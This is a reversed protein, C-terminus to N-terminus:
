LNKPMKKLFHSQRRAEFIKSRGHGPNGCCSRDGADSGPEVCSGMCGAIAPCVLCGPACVTNAHPTVIPSVRFAGHVGLFMAAQSLHLAPQDPRKEFRGGTSQQSNTLIRELHRWGLFLRSQFRFRPASGVTVQSFYDPALPDRELVFLYAASLRMM